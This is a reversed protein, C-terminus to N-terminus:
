KEKEEALFQGLAAQLVELRRALEPLCAGALSLDRQQAHQEIGQAASVVELADLNAALGKMSHASRELTSVDEAALARQAQNLLTPADELFLM